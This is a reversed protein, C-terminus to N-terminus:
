DCAQQVSKFASLNTDCNGGQNLQTSTGTCGAGSFSKIICGDTDATLSTAKKSLTFCTNGAGGLNKQSKITLVSGGCTGSAFASFQATDAAALAAVLGFITAISLLQM